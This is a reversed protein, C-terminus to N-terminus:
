EQASNNPIFITRDDLNEDELLQTTYRKLFTKSNEQIIQYGPHELLAQVDNEDTVFDEGAFYRVNLEGVFETVATEYAEEYWQEEFMMGLALTEGDNKFLDYTTQLYDLLAPDPQNTEKAWGSVDLKKREYSLGEENLRMTGISNPYISLAGTVIEHFSDEASINQAHIHGAFGTRVGKGTFFALAEESNELSFRGGESGSHNLLPHHGIMYAETIAPKTQYYEDLWAFTEEKIAGEALPAETSKTDPYRNTDIMLFPYGEKPEMVYSLSHPDEWVALDYGYDAFLTKFDDPTVQEVPEMEEGEFKRAWGSHIDHNGPIVSVQTGNEEIQRFFDAMEKMSQYEGNFTLDGSVILLDPQEKAAEWVLAEMIQPMRALDKGASTAQMRRFAEGDDFLEPALYHPDTVMWIAFEEEEAVLPAITQVVSTSENPEDCSSLVTGAFLLCILQIGKKM